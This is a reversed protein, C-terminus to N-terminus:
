AAIEKVVADPSLSIPDRQLYLAIAERINRIAEEETDGASVCGPLEPVWVAWEGTEKDQELVIRWNM